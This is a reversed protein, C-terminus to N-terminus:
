EMSFGGLEMNKDFFFYWVKLNENEKHTQAEELTPFINNHDYAYFYKIGKNICYQITDKAIQIHDKKM